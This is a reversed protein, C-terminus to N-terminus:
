AKTEENATKTEAPTETAPEKEKEDKTTAKKKSGGGSKKEKVGKKTAKKPKGKKGKDEKKGTELYEIIRKIIKKKQGSSKLEVQKCYKQLDTLNFLNHLDKSDYKGKV